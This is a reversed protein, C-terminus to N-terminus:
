RTIFPHARRQRLAYLQLGVSWGIMAIGVSLISVWSQWELITRYAPSHLVREVFAGNWWLAAVAILWGADQALCVTLANTGQRVRLNKAAFALLDQLTWLLMLVGGVMGCRFTDLALRYSPDVVLRSVFGGFLAVASAGVCWAVFRLMWAFKKM